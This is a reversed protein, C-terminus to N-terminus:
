SNTTLLKTFKLRPIWAVLGGDEDFSVGGIKNKNAEKTQKSAGSMRQKDEKSVLKDFIEQYFPTGSYEEISSLMEVNAVSLFTESIDVTTEDVNYFAYPSNGPIYIIEGPRQVTQVPKRGYLPRRIIQLFNKKNFCSIIIVPLRM